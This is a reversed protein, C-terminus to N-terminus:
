VSANVGDVTEASKVTMECWAPIFGSRIANRKSIVNSWACCYFPTKGRALIESALRSTLASAIGCRRYDPLVDIGIQWMDECDASCAAFGVLEGGDYAGVGLVDCMKRDACLANSWQPLYLEAFDPQTLIRTEYACPLPRLKEVDPLYYEAMHCIKQGMPRLRESLWYTNPTSFLHYWTFRAMYEAALNRYPEQVSAVVNGGYTVFQMPISPADYYVRRRPDAASLVIVNEEKLFDEPSCHIDIASQYRATEFLDKTTLM